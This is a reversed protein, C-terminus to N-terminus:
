EAVALFGARLVPECVHLQEMRALRRLNEGHPQIVLAVETVALGRRMRLYEILWNGRQLVRFLIDHNRRRRLVDVVFAFQRQHDSLTYAASRGIFGAVGNKADSAAVIHAFAIPLAARLFIQLPPAGLPGISKRWETRDDRM